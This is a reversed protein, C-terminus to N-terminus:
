LFIVPTNFLRYGKGNGEGEGGGGGGGGGFLSFDIVVFNFIQQTGELIKWDSRSHLADSCTQCIDVQCNIGFDLSFFLM